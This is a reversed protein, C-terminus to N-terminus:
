KRAKAPKPRYEEFGKIFGDVATGIARNALRFVKLGGILLDEGTELVANLIQGPM